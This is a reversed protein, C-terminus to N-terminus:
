RVIVSDREYGTSIYSIKRELSTELFEIYRKAAGPLDKYSTKGFTSEKWGDFVVYKPKVSNLISSSAPFYHTLSGDPLEYATCVYIKDLGDLVDLKMLFIEKVGNVDVSYKTAVLDFWGCRRPRGTTAGYERGRERLYEGVENKQETPFPGEGVRTIYAKTIGIVNAIDFFGIGSGTIAGGSVTNSSTVYPYTGFDIDLLGGQAGEFLINMRKKHAEFLLKETDTIFEKIKNGKEMLDDYIKDVSPLDEINYYNKLLFKKVEYSKNIRSILEERPLFLDVMRIGTRDVKDVYCPGIGRLTTGISNSSKQEKVRDMIKHYPMVIHAKNSIWLRNKLNVFKSLFEIEKVLEELEIVLGNGLIAQVNERLIGSPILHFVIKQDKVWVTHGANAGGQYRVVFDFDKSLYDVVKAKGEDGWQTGVIIYIM